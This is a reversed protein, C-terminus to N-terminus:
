YGGVKFYDIFDDVIVKNLDNDGTNVLLVLEGNNKVHVGNKKEYISFRTKNVQYEYLYHQMPYKFRLGMNDIYDRQHKLWYDLKYDRYLRYIYRITSLSVRNPNDSTNFVFDIEEMVTEPEKEEIICTIIDVMEFPAIYFYKGGTSGKQNKYRKEFVPHPIGAVPRIGYNSSLFANKWQQQESRSLKNDYKLVDGEAFYSFSPNNVEM